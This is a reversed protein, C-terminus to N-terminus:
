VQKYLKERCSRKRMLANHAKRAVTKPHLAHAWSSSTKSGCGREQWDEVPPAHIQCLPARGSQLAPRHPPQIAGGLNMRNEQGARESPETAAVDAKHDHRRRADRAMFVACRGNTQRGPVRFSMGAMMCIMSQAKAGANPSAQVRGRSSPM